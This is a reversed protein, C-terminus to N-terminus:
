HVDIAERHEPHAAKGKFRILKLDSVNEAQLAHGFYDPPNNGWNSGWSVRCNRLTV